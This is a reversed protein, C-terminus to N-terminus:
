QGFASDPIPQENIGPGSWSFNLSPKDKTRHVYFLRFPHLGAQLKIGGSVEKGETYGYDADIVTADHIRLLAGTDTRLHFVYEGDKPIRLRLRVLELVMEYWDLRWCDKRCYLTLVRTNGQKLRMAGGLIGAVLFAHLHHEPGGATLVGQLLQCPQSSASEGGDFHPQIMEGLAARTRSNARSVRGPLGLGAAATTYSESTSLSNASFNSWRSSTFSNTFSGSQNLISVGSPVQLGSQAIRLSSSM